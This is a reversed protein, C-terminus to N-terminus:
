WGCNTKDEPTGFIYAACPRSAVTDEYQCTSGDCKRKWNEHHTPKAQTYPIKRLQSCMCCQVIKGSPEPRRTFHESTAVDFWSCDRIAFVDGVTKTCSDKGCRYKESPVNGAYKDDNDRLWECDVCKVNKGAM